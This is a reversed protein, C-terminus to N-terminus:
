LALNSLRCQTQQIPCALITSLSNQWDKRLQMQAKEDQLEEGSEKSFAGGKPAYSRGFNVMHKESHTLDEEGQSM